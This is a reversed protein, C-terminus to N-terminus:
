TAAIASFSFSCFIQAQRLSLLEPSVLRGVEVDLLVRLARLTREKSRDNTPDSSHAEVCEEHSALRQVQRLREPSRLPHACILLHPQRLSCGIPGGGPM